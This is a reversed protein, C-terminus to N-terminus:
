AVDLSKIFQETHLSIKGSNRIQRLCDRILNIMWTIEQKNEFYKTYLRSLMGILGETGKNYCVFRPIQCHECAVIDIKDDIHFDSEIEAVRLAEYCFSCAEKINVISLVTENSSQDIKEFSYSLDQTIELVQGEGWKDELCKKALTKITEGMNSKQNKGLIKLM